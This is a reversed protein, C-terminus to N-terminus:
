SQQQFNISQINLQSNSIESEPHISSFTIGSEYELYTFELQSNTYTGIVAGISKITFKGTSNSAVIKLQGDAVEASAQNTTYNNGSYNAAFMVQTPNFDDPELGADIPEVDCSVFGLSLAFLFISLGLFKNKM